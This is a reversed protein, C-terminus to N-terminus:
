LPCGSFQLRLEPGRIGLELVVTFAVQDVDLRGGIITLSILFQTRRSSMAPGTVSGRQPHVSTVEETAVASISGFDLPDFLPAVAFEEPATM